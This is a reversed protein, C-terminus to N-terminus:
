RRSLSRNWNPNSCDNCHNACDSKDNRVPSLSPTGCIRPIILGCGRYLISGPRADGPPFGQLCMCPRHHDAAPHDPDRGEVVECLLAPRIRYQALAGLQGGPRGPMGCAQQRQEVHAVADALQVFIRDVEVLIQGLFGALVDTKVHRPVEPERGVLLAHVLVALVATGGVRDPNRELDDGRRLDGPEPREAVGFPQDAREVMGIVAMDRRGVDGLRHRGARAVHPRLNVPIGRDGRDFLPGASLPQDPRRPPSM